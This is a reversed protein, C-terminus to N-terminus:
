HAFGIKSVHSEEGYSMGRGITVRFWYPQALMAHHEPGPFTVIQPEELRSEFDSGLGRM